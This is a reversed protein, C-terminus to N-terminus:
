PINTLKEKVVVKKLTTIFKNRYDLSPPNNCVIWYAIYQDIMIIDYKM